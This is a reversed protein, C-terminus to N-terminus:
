SPPIVDFFLFCFLIEYVEFRLADIASWTFAMLQAIIVATKGSAM